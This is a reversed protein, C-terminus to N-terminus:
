FMNVRTLLWNSFELQSKKHGNTFKSQVLLVPVFLKLKRTSAKFKNNKPNDRYISFAKYITYRVMM